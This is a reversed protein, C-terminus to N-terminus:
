VNNYIIKCQSNDLDSGTRGPAFMLNNKDSPNDIGHHDAKNLLIHGLEHAMTDKHATNKIVAHNVYSSAPGTACYPPISYALATHGSFTEVFFVRMPSSLSYKLKASDYMTKEEPDVAGCSSAVAVDTDGGLWTDSLANPVTKNHGVTFNVCCKGYINNAEAIDNSPSRSSGRMKIMDVAVNKTGESCTDKNCRQLSLGTRLSPVM